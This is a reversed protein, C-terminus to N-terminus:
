RARHVVEDALRRYCASGPSDPRYSLVSARVTPASAVAEDYAVVTDFVRKGFVSRLEAVVAQCHESEELYMTPLLGLLHLHPHLRDHVVRTTELLARVGRLALYQCEVPILLESSATLANVTVLGLSPPTDILIFDVNPQGRDFAGSLRKARGNVHALRFEAASLDVGAPALWLGSGLAHVLERLAIEEDLLLAQTSPRVKYPDLGVSATLAAQPDLDVLLVRRGREALAAGLNLVTTSKGVGGKQNAIAIVRAM